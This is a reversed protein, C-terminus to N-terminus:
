DLLEEGKCLADEIDSICELVGSHLKNAKYTSEDFRGQRSKGTQASRITNQLESAVEFVPAEDQPPHDTSSLTFPRHHLCVSKIAERVFLRDERIYKELSASAENEDDAINQKHTSERTDLRSLKEKKDRLKGVEQKALSSVKQLLNDVRQNEKDLIFADQLAANIAMNQKMIETKIQATTPPATQGLEKDLEEICSKISEDPDAHCLQQEYQRRIGRLMEEHRRELMDILELGTAEPDLEAVDEVEIELKKEWYDLFEDM